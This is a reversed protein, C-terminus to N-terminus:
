VMYFIKAYDLQQHGTKLANKSANFIGKAEGRWPCTRMSWSKSFCDTGNCASNVLPM